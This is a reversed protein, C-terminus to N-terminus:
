LFSTTFSALAPGSNSNDSVDVVKPTEWRGANTDLMSWWLRSDGAVGKWALVLGHEWQVLAPGHSTLIGGDKPIAQQPTEWVGNGFRSWWIRDDGPVGKWAMVLGFGGGGSLAPADSTHIAGDRPRLAAQDSWAAGNNHSAGYIQVDNDPAKWVMTATGGHIALAPSHSTRGLPRDGRSWKGNELTSWAVGADPRRWGLLPQGNNFVALAPRTTTQFQGDPGALPAGGASSLFIAPESSGATGKLAMYVEGGGGVSSLAPGDTSTGVVQNHSWRDPIVGEASTALDAQWIRDDGDVGHWALRLNNANSANGM